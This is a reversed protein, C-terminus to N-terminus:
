LVMVCFTILILWLHNKIYFNCIVPLVLLDYHCKYLLLLFGDCLINILDVVTSGILPHRWFFITYRPFWEWTALCGIMAERVFELFPWSQTSPLTPIIGVNDQNKEWWTWFKTLTFEFTKKKGEALFIKVLDALFSFM